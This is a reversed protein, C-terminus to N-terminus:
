MTTPTRVIYDKVHTCKAIVYQVATLGGTLWITPM